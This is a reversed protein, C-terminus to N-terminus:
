SVSDGAAHVVEIDNALVRLHAVDMVLHQALQKAYYSRAKGRLVVGEAHVLLDLGSVRGGLSKLVLQLVAQDNPTEV